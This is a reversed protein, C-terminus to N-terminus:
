LIKKLTLRIESPTTIEKYDDLLTKITGCLANRKELAYFFKISKEGRQYWSCKSRLKVGEAINGYTKELKNKTKDYEDSKEKSDTDKELKTMKSLLLVHEKKSKRVLAKSFIVSRKCMEYKLFEWKSQNFFTDNQDLFIKTNHIFTKM